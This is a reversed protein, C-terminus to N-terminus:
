PAEGHRFLSVEINGRVGQVHDVDGLSIMMRVGLGVEPGHDVDGGLRETRLCRHLPPVDVRVDPMRPVLKCVVDCTNSAAAGDRADVVADLLEGLVLCLPSPFPKPAFPRLSM